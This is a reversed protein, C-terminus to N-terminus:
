ILSRKLFFSWIYDNSDDIILLWHQKGDFTSTSPSSIVFFLREGLINSCPLAKKSVACQKAKGLAFNECPKFTGTVQIGLAKATAHTITKFLHGLEVHLNKINKKPSAMASQARENSAICLFNVGMIWDNHTKVKCDLEINGCRTNAVINNCHDSSIRNGQLLEWTLSLLNVGAKPCFKMPWLTHM